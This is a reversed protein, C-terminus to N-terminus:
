VHVGLPLVKPNAIRKWDAYSMRITATHNGANFYIWEDQELIEDAYIPLDGFPPEAGLEVGPFLEAVEEETALHWNRQGCAAELRDFDLNHTAPLVCMIYGEQGQVIVSKVMQEGPIHQAEAIEMATYAPPHHLVEFEVGERRLFKQLKDM